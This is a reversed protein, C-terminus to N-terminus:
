PQRRNRTLFAIVEDERVLVKGRPCARYIPMGKQAWRMLSRKSVNLRKAMSALDRFTAVIPNPRNVLARSLMALGLWSM